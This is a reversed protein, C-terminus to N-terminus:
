TLKGKNMRIEERVGEILGRTMDCFESMSIEEGRENYVPMWELFELVQEGKYFVKNIVYVDFYEPKSSPVQIFTKKARAERYHIEYPYDKKVQIPSDEPYDIDSVIFDKAMEQTYSFSKEKIGFLNKILVYPVLKGAAPKQISIVKAESLDTLKILKRPRIIVTDFIILVVSEETKIFNFWVKM